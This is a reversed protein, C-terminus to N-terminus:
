ESAGTSLAEEYVSLLENASAAWSYAESSFNIASESMRNRIECSDLLHAICGTISEVNLDAVVAADNTQLSKWINVRNSIVAPTGVRLAEVLAIAFNEQYSTLAFIDAAALAAWKDNGSLPGIFHCQDAIGLQSVNSELQTRYEPESPGVLLLAVDSRSECVKAMAPLLLDLGKKSHLRGLFMVLRKGEFQPYTKLFSAALQNRDGPPDDAALPIVHGKALGACQSEALRLEEEHTYIMGTAKRLQPFEVLRSYLGKKWSKRSLSNPDIMGHTSVVYPVGMKACLRSGQINFYSWLNHIHVIDVSRLREKLAQKLTSSFGFGKPGKCPLVTLRYNADYDDVWTSDGVPVYSDTTLIEADVGLPVLWRCFRDAVVPPGGATPHM